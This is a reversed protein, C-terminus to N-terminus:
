MKGVFALRTSRVNDREYKTVRHRKARTSSVTSWQFFYATHFYVLLTFCLNTVYRETKASFRTGREHLAVRGDISRRM